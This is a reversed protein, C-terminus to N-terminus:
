TPFSEGGYYSLSQTPIVGFGVFRKGDEMVWMLHFLFYIVRLLSLHFGTFSQPITQSNDSRFLASFCLRSPIVLPGFLYASVFCFVDLVDLFLAYQLLDRTFILSFPYHSVSVFQFGWCEGAKGLFLFLLLASAASWTIIFSIRAECFGLVFLRSVNSNEVGFWEFKNLVRNKRSYDIM